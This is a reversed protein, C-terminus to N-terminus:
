NHLTLSLRFTRPPAAILAEAPYTTQSVETFTSNVTAAVIPVGAGPIAKSTGYTNTNLANEVSLQMDINKGVPKRALVDVLAFPPSFYSNNKGFYQTGIAAFAGDKFAYTFQGYGQLYPICTTIGPATTGNGCVQVNNVPLSPSGPAYLNPTLGNVVVSNAAAALNFGFGVAPADTYKLIISKSNLNAANFPTFVGELAVPGAPAYDPLDPREVVTTLQEFVGHVITQVGDLSLLSNNKFRFDVGASYAWSTEPNLNPNKEILTGGGAFPAGLSIAPSQYTPLGSIQAPFPFTAAGGTAARIALRPNPHYVFAIKPDFKTVSRGLAQLIPNGNADDVVNGHSDLEPQTGSVTWTTDYLGFNVSLAPIVPIDGTLSFTSYREATFPVAVQITPDFLNAYTSQGHFDYTFNLLGGNGVPQLISTTAGYLKDQEYTTFISGYCQFQNNGTVTYTGTPSTVNGFSGACASAAANPAYTTGNYTLGSLGSAGYVPTVSAGNPFQGSGAPGFFSPYYNQGAGVTLVNNEPAVDAIYPRILLTTNGFSTRFEADYLNQNNYIWGGTYWTYGTINRGILYDYAPNTCNQPNSTKCAVVQQQGYYSAWASGQPLYGGWAGVFGAELSTTPTFDYKLKFVEGKNFFNGNGSLSTVVTATNATDPSILFQTTGTLNNNQGASGLAIAYELHGISGTSLIDSFQSAFNDVGYTLETHNKKTFGLTDINATGGVALNAFPTTNGPGSQTEFGGVLYSPFYQSSWAGNQGNAFPHGDILIQTEYPQVAGVVITTDPQSGMHQLTVDPAHEIVANIQPSPLNQFAQASLYTQTAPGTNIQSGRTTTTVQGITRLSSLTSQNMTVNVPTTTGAAVTIDSLSVPNYGGRDIEITYIGPPVTATFAGNGDTSTSVKTPGTLNVHAGVVNQGSGDRVSGTLTATTATTQAVVPATPPTPALSTDAVAPVTLAIMSLLLAVAFGGRSEICRRM